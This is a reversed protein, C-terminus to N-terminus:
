LDDNDIMEEVRQDIDESGLAPDDILEDILRERIVPKLREVERRMAALGGDFEYEDRLYAEIHWLGVDAKREAEARVRQEEAEIQQAKNRHAIKAELPALADRKARDIHKQSTDCGLTFLARKVRKKGQELEESTAGPLYLETVARNCAAKHEYERIMPQVASTAGLELDNVGADEGLKAVAATAAEAARSKLAAFEPLYKVEFPLQNVASEIAKQRDQVRRWPVLAKEIAASILRKITTEDTALDLRGLIGSVVTHVDLEAERPFGFPIANLAYRTWGAIRERRVQQSQEAERRRLEEAAQATERRTRERFWDEVEEADRELRRREVQSAAIRVANAAATVEPAAEVRDRGRGRDLPTAQQDAPDDNLEQPVPPVGETELRRIETVPIRWQNGDTIEAAIEGAECLRRVHYSSIGLQKAAQGSRYYNGPM